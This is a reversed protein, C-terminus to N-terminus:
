NENFKWAHIQCILNDKLQPVLYIGKQHPCYKHITYEKRLKIEVIIKKNHIQNTTLFNDRINLLDSFLFINLNNTIIYKKRFVNVHM